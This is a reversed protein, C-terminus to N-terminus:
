QKPSSADLARIGGDRFQACGLTRTIAGNQKMVLGGSAAPIVTGTQMKGSQMLNVLNYADYGLAFLRPQNKIAPLDGADSRVSAWSSDAQLMLPMDCFRVGNLESDGAGNYILSTSYVPLGTARYFRLQPWIMHGESPRSAMFVFDIDDRRHTEFESKSGIIGTLANHRSQSAQLNLLDQIIDGYDVAGPKYRASKLVGGGLEHLRKDLAALVRDGWETQPVLAIARKDGQAVAQEAIARAEDEPALGFQFFNAPVRAAEDLYNLALVPVHLQGQAAIAAISEKRLPGVIFGAGERVAQQYAANENGTGSDYMRVPIRGGSKLYAALFGDRVAEATSALPGTLPLILALGSGSPLAALPTPTGAWSASVANASPMATRVAQLRAMQSIDLSGSPIRTLLSEARANDGGKQATEAASLLFEASFPGSSAQAAQEYARSAEAYQGSDVARRATDAPAAFPPPEAGAAVSFALLVAGALLIAGSHRMGQRLDINMGTLTHCPRLERWGKRTKDM